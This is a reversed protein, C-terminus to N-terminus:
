EISSSMSIRLGSSKHTGEPSTGASFLIPSYSAQREQSLSDFSLAEDGSLSPVSSSSSSASDMFISSPMPRYDEDSLEDEWNDPVDDDGNDPTMDEKRLSGHVGSPSSVGSSSSSSASSLGVRELAQKAREIHQAYTIASILLKDLFNLSVMTLSKHEKPKKLDMLIKSFVHAQKHICTTAVADKTLVSMATVFEFSNTNRNFEVFVKHNLLNMLRDNTLLSDKIDGIIKQAVELNDSQDKVAIKALKLLKDVLVGDTRSLKKQSLVEINKYINKIKVMLFLNIYGNKSPNEIDIYNINENKNDFAHSLDSMSCIISDIIILEGPPIDKLNEYSFEQSNQIYTIIDKYEFSSHKVIVKILEFLFVDIPNDFNLKNSGIYSKCYNALKEATIATDHNNM